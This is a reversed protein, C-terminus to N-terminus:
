GLLSQSDILELFTSAIKKYGKNSPHIDPQPGPAAPNTDTFVYTNGDKECMRTYACITRVNAPVQAGNTNFTRFATEVDAVPVGMAGYVAALTGNFFTTLELNPGVSAPDTIWLALNPNYYNMAVIPVGPAVAQLTGVIVLLNGAMTSLQTAVCIQVLPDAPDCALVDNAGITLTILGVEGPHTLLYDVAADMQSTGGPPLFGFPGYCVSGGPSAGGIGYLMETTDDGPCALNVLTDFGHDSKLSKFLHNVYGNDTFPAPQQTGAAVSDGLALHTRGGHDAATAPAIGALASALLALITLAIRRRM